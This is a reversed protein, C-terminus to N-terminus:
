TIRSKPLKSKVHMEAPLHYSFLYHFHIKFGTLFLHLLRSPRCFYTSPKTKLKKNYM